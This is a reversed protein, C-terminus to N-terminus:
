VGKLDDSNTVNSSFTQPNEICEDCIRRENVVKCYNCMGSVDIEGESVLREATELGWVEVDNQVVITDWLNATANEGNQDDDSETGWGM